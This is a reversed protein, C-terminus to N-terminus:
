LTNYVSGNVKDPPPQVWIAFGGAMMGAGAGVNGCGMVDNGRLRSGLPRHGARDGAEMGDACCVEWGIVDNGRGQASM